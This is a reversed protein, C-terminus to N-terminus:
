GEPVRLAQLPIAKGKKCEWRRRPRRIQRKTEPKGVYVWYGNRRKRRREVRGARKIIRSKIMRINPSFYLDYLEENHLRRLERTVGDSKPGFIKREVRNEVM